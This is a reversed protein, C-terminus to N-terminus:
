LVAGSAANYAYTLYEQYTPADAETNGTVFVRSGDPSVAIATAGSFGGLNSRQTWVQAGTAANYALTVFESGAYADSGTVFVKSGDPSVAIAAAHDGFHVYYQAWLEQSTEANYAHIVIISTDCHPDCDTVAGAVFVRSADPSVAVSPGPDFYDHGSVGRVWLTQGGTGSAGAAPTVAVTLLIALVVLTARKAINM